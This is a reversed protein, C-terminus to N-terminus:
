IWKERESALGVLLPPLDNVSKGISKFMFAYSSHATTHPSTSVDIIFAKGDQTVRFDIRSFGCLGLVKSVQIAKAKLKESLVSNQDFNWFLYNDVNVDDYTLFDSGLLNNGNKSIGVAMPAHPCDLHIVPVEVEWGSVFSQVTIPQRYEGAIERVKACLTGDVM